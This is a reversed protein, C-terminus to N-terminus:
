ENFLDLAVTILYGKDGKGANDVFYFRQSRRIPSGQFLSDKPQLGTTACLQIFRYSKGIVLKLSLPVGAPNIDDPSASYFTSTQMVGM